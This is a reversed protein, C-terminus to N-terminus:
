IAVKPHSCKAHAENFDHSLGKGPLSFLALHKEISIHMNFMISFLILPSCLTISVWPHKSPLLIFKALFIAAAAIISPPYCLMDYDLLSLEAIYNALFELQLLPAQM